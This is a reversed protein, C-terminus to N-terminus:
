MHLNQLLSGYRSQTQQTPGQAFNSLMQDTGQYPIQTPNNVDLAAPDSTKQPVGNIAMWADISTTRQDLQDLRAKPDKYKAAVTQIQKQFYRAANPNAKSVQERYLSLSGGLLTKLHAMKGQWDKFMGYDPNAQKYAGRLKLLETYANQAVPSQRYLWTDALSKNQTDANQASQDIPSFGPPTYEGHAIQQYTKNTDRGLQSGLATYQADKIVYVRGQPSAKILDSQSQAQDFAGPKWDEGTVAKYDTAFQADTQPNVDSPSIGYKNAMAYTANIKAARVDSTSERFKLSFPALFSMLQNAVGSRAVEQWATQYEPSDSNNMIGFLQENTMGPHNAVIRSEVLNEMTAQGLTGTSDNKMAVPKAFWGPAFKAVDASAHQRMWANLHGYWAMDTHQPTNSGPVFEASAWNIVSGLLAKHRIGLMDPEFTDGYTGAMNFLSDFVPYFGFGGAKLYNLVGGLGTQDSKPGGSDGMMGLSKTFGFLADPNALLTFGAPGTMVYLWGKQRANLGTHDYKNYLEDALRAFNTLLVPNQMMEDAYLMTARSSYYHFPMVKALTQDLNTRYYSFHTKHVLDLASKDANGVIQAYDQSLRRSVGDSFGLGRYYGLLEKADRSPVLSVEGPISIGRNVAEQRVHAEFQPVNAEVEAQLKTAWLKGRSATDIGAGIRRNYEVAKGLKSGVNEGFVRRFARPSDSTLSGLGAHVINKSPVLGYDHMTDNMFKSGFTSYQFPDAKWAKKIEDIFERPTAMGSFGNTLLTNFWSSTINTEHYRPSLLAQGKWVASLDRLLTTKPKSLLGNDAYVYSELRKMAAYDRPNNLIDVGYRGWKDVIKKEPKGKLIANIVDPHADLGWAHGLGKLVLAQDKDFETASDKLTQAYTKGGASQSVKDFLAANAEKSLGPLYDQNLQHEFAYRFMKRNDGLLPNVGTGQWERIVQNVRARGVPDLNILKDALEKTNPAKPFIMGMGNLETVLDDITKKTTRAVDNAGQGVNAANALTRDGLNLAKNGYLATTASRALAENSQGLEMKPMNKLNPAYKLLGRKAKALTDFEEVIISGDPKQVRWVQKPLSKGVGPQTDEVITWNDPNFVASLVGRAKGIGSLESAASSQKAGSLIGSQTVWASIQDLQQRVAERASLKTLWEGPKTKAVTGALYSKTFETLQGPVEYAGHVGKLGYGLGQAARGTITSGLGATAAHEAGGGILKEAAPKIGSKVLSGEAGIGIGGVWTLPDAGIDMLARQYTPNDHQTREWVGRGGKYGNYGKEYANLTDQVTQYDGGHAMAKNYFNLAVDPIPSRAVAYDVNGLAAKAYTNDFVEHAVASVADLLPPAAISGIAQMPGMKGYKDIAHTVDSWISM